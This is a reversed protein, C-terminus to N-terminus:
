MRFVIYVDEIVIEVVFGGIEELVSCRLVVCLGCFFIVDWM